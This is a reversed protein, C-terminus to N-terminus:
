GNWDDAYTKARAVADSYIYSVHAIYAALRRGAAFVDGGKLVHWGLTPM